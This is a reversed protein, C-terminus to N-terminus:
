IQVIPGLLVLFQEAGVDSDIDEALYNDLM